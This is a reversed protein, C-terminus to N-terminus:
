SPPRTRNSLDAALNLSQSFGVSGDPGAAGDARGLGALLFRTPLHPLAVPLAVALSSRWPASRGPWPPTPLRGGYGDASDRVPTVPTAVTTSWRRLLFSARGPRGDGALRGRRRPLVHPQPLRRQQRRRRPVDALLPLGALSPSRRTVALYDM